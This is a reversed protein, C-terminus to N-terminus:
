AEVFREECGFTKRYATPSTGMQRKFHARFSAPSGFGAHSAISEAPMDTTELLRQAHYVRQQNLWKYPSTGTAAQFRRVFTRTSMTAVAAMEKVTLDDALNQVMWDLTHALPDARTAAVPSTVFQAQGGERLPPVIMRRAVTNAVAAGHDRRVIHLSLDIAAGTGASTLINGEDVFLVDPKLNIKPYMRRLDETALWHTTAARGDLLGTAALVRAGFCFSVLRGGRKAVARLADLLAEPPERDFPQWGPVIVTDARRVDDLGYETQLRFGGTTALNPGDFSCVKFRYWPFGLYESRDLGFVECAVAMEFVSAVDGVVVAVTHRRAM